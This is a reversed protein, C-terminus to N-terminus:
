GFLNRDLFHLDNPDFYKQTWADTTGLTWGIAAAAASKSANVPAAVGKTKAKVSMSDLFDYHDILALAEIGFAAAVGSDHIAILNDGNAAEGGEALNSSGCYVIGDPGTMGCVVFKDHVEHGPPVPVQDFPPPLKTRGAKGTVLVGETSGVPYLYVGNPADSIGYTFISETKHLDNLADYVQDGAQDIQM